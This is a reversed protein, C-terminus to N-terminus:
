RCTTADWRAPRRMTAHGALNSGSATAHDARAVDLWGLGRLACVVQSLPLGVVGTVSGEIWDVFAAANGQVAYAGAKDRGEGTDVYAAVENGSLARFAVRTTVTEAHAARFGGPLGLDPAALVFRTSVRHVAGALKEIMRAPTPMLDRPKGLIGGDPAVVVTDAVLIGAASPPAIVAVAALKAAVVREAYRGPAEGALLREDVDAVRVVFPVAIRALLKRPPTAFAGGLVLPNAETIRM